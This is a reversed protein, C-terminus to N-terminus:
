GSDHPLFYQGSLNIIRARSTRDCQPKEAGNGRDRHASAQSMYQKRIPARLRYSRNRQILEARFASGSDDG